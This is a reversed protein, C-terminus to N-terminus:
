EPNPDVLILRLGWYLSALKVSVCLNRPITQITKTLRNEHCHWFEHLSLKPNMISQMQMRM